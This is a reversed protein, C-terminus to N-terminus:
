SNVSSKEKFCKETMRDKAEKAAQLLENCKKKGEEEDTETIGHFDLFNGPCGKDTHTKILTERVREKWDKQTVPIDENIFLADLDKQLAYDDDYECSRAWKNVYTPKIVFRKYIIKLLGTLSVKDRIHGYDGDENMNDEGVKEVIKLILWNITEKKKAKTWLKTIVFKRFYRSKKNIMM